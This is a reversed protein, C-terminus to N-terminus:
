LSFRQLVDMLLDPKMAVDGIDQWFLIRFPVSANPPQGVMQEALWIVPHKQIIANKIDSRHLVDTTAVVYAIFYTTM